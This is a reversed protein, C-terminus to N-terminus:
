SVMRDRMEGERWNTLEGNSMKKRKKMGEVGRKREERRTKNKGKKKGEMREDKRGEVRMREGDERRKKRGIRLIYYEKRLMKKTIGVKILVKNSVGERKEFM